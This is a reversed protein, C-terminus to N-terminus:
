LFDQSDGSNGIKFIKHKKGRCYSYQKARFSLVLAITNIVDDSTCQTADM